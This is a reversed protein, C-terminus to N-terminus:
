PRGPSSSDWSWRPSCWAFPVASLAHALSRRWPEMVLVDFHRDTGHRRSRLVARNISVFLASPSSSPATQTSRDVDQLVPYDDMGERGNSRWGTYAVYLLLFVLMPIQMLLERAEFRALAIVARTRNPHLDQAPPEM